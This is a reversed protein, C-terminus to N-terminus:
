HLRQQWSLWSINDCIKTHFWEKIFIGLFNNWPAYELILCSKYTQKLSPDNPRWHDQYRFHCEQYVNLSTLKVFARQVLLLSPPALICNLRANDVSAKRRKRESRIPYEWKWSVRKFFHHDKTDWPPDWSQHRMPPGLQGEHTLSSNQHKM